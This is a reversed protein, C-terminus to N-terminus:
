RRILDQLVEECRSRLAAEAPTEGLWTGLADITEREAPSWGGAGALTSQISRAQRRPEPSSAFTRLLKRAVAIAEDRQLTM